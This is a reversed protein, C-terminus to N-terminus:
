KTTKAVLIKRATDLVVYAVVSLGIKKAANDFIDNIGEVVEAVNPQSTPTPVNKDKKVFDVRIERNLM